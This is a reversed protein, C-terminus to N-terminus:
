QIAFDTSRLMTKGASDVAEVDLRYAGPTLAGVKVKLAFPLTIGGGSAGVEPRMAGQSKVAETRKDVVQIRVEVVPPSPSSLLPEYVEGYVVVSDSRDFVTGGAPIIRLNKFMLPALGEILELDQASGVDTLSRQERSLALGSLMFTRGDYPEITVPIELRGFSDAVSSLAIKMKYTGPGVSFQKEYRMPRTLFADLEKQTAFDLTVNDSFRAGIEGDPLYAIGLINLEGHSKGKKKEFKLSKSPIDMVVHLQSSGPEPYFFPVQISARIKGPDDGTLRYELEKEIPKEALLDQSKVNCYFARSRVTVGARDVKVKLPHCSGDASAAPTYALLYYDTQEQAIRALGTLLANANAFVYGGTFNAMTYLVQQTSVATDAPTDTPHLLEGKSIGGLVTSNQSRSENLGNVDIPYLAVDFRNCAQAALNIQTTIQSTIPFGSTFVAVAKRGPVAALDMALRRIGLLFGEPGFAVADTSTAGQVEAVVRQLRATDTTFNQAISIAGGFNVIAMFHNPSATAEVFISAAKRVRQQSAYDLTSNDFLLVLYSPQAIAHDIDTVFAASQLAQEKGDEFVHFDRAVLGRVAGGAKDTVVADVLVMRADTRIVVPGSPSQAFFVIAFALAIWVVRM